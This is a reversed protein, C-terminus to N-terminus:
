RSFYIFCSSTIHYVDGLSGSENTVSCNVYFSISTGNYWFGELHEPRIESLWNVSQEAAEVAKKFAGPAPLVDVGPHHTSIATIIKSHLTLHIAHYSLHLSAIILMITLYRVMPVYSEFDLVEWGLNKLFVLIGLRWDLQFHDVL